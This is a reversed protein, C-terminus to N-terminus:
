KGDMNLQQENNRSNNNDDNDNDHCFVLNFENKLISFIYFFFINEERFYISNSIERRYYYNWENNDMIIMVLVPCHMIAFLLFSARNNATTMMIMRMMLFIIFCLLLIHIFILYLYSKEGKGRGNRQSFHTCLNELPLVNNYSWESLYIRGWFLIVHASSYTTHKESCSSMRWYHDNTNTIIGNKSYMPLMSATLPQFSFISSSIFLLKKLLLM